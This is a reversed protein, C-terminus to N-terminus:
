GEARRADLEARVAAVAPAPGRRLDLGRLVDTRVDALNVATWTPNM